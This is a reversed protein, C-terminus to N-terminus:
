CQQPEPEVTFQEDSGAGPQEIAAMPEPSPLKQQAVAEVPRQEASEFTHEVLLRAGFPTVQGTLWLRQMALQLEEGTERSLATYTGTSETMAVTM